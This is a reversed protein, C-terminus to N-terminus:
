SFPDDQKNFILPHVTGRCWAEYCKFLEDDSLRKAWERNRAITFRFSETKGKKILNFLAEAQAPTGAAQKSVWAEVPKAVSLTPGKAWQQPRTIIARVEAEITKLDPFSHHKLPLNACYADLESLKLRTSLFEAVEILYKRTPAYRFKNQVSELKRVFEEKKNFIGETNQM